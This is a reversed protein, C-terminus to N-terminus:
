QKKKKIGINDGRHVIQPPNQLSLILRLPYCVTM